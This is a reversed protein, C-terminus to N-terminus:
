TLIAFIFFYMIKRLITFSYLYRLQFPFVKIIAIM